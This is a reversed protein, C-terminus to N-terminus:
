KEFDDKEKSLDLEEIDNDDLKKLLQIIKLIISYYGNDVMNEVM